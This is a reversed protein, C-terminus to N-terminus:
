KTSKKGRKSSLNEYVESGYLHFFCNFCVIDLNEKKGNSRNGDKFAVKLPVKYDGVRQEKYGCNLCVEPYIGYRLLDDKFRGPNTVSREGRLIAQLGPEGSLQFNPRRPSKHLEYLTKGTESDKYMSAYKKWTSFSIKLFNAAESNSNTARIAYTVENETLALRKKYFFTM